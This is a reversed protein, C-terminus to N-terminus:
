IVDHLHKHTYSDAMKGNYGLIGSYKNLIKRPTKKKEKGGGERGCFKCQLETSTNIKHFAQTTQESGRAAYM